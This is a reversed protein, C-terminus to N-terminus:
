CVLQAVQLTFCFCAGGGPTDRVWIRQGHADLFTKAIALGLGTGSGAERRAILGFIENRRSRAIGPGHDTIAVTIRRAGARVAGITIPTNPPAHRGANELLNTLVRGILVTDVAVMPLNAAIEIDAHRAASDNPLETVVVAVLEALSTHSLQPKLVGGHVRTMNLVDTVLASLRDSQTNILAALERQVGQDLSFSLQPDALVSSAAKISSLPGRLDHSVAAVLMRALSEVEDTLQARLAQERLEPRDTAHDVALKEDPRVEGDVDAGDLVQHCRANVGRAHDGDSM